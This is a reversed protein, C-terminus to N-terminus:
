GRIYLITYEVTDELFYKGKELSVGISDGFNYLTTRSTNFMLEKSDVLVVRPKGGEWRKYSLVLVNKDYMGILCLGDRIYAKGYRSLSESSLDEFYLVADDKPLGANPLDGLYESYCSKAHNIVGIYKEYDSGLYAKQRDELNYSSYLLKATSYEKKPNTYVVKNDVGGVNTTPTIEPSRIIEESSYSHDVIFGSFMILGFVIMLVLFVVISIIAIKASKPINSMAFLVVKRICEEVSLM